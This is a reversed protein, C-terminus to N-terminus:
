NLYSPYEDGRTNIMDILSTYPSQIQIAIGRKSTNMKGLRALDRDEMSIRRIYAQFGSFSSPPPAITASTAPFRRELLPFKLSIQSLKQSFLQSIPLSTLIRAEWKEKIPSFSPIHPMKLCMCGPGIQPFGVMPFNCPYELLLFPFQLTLFRGSNQLFPEILARHYISIVDDSDFVLILHQDNFELLKIVEKSQNAIHNIADEKGGKFQFRIKIARQAIERAEVLENLMEGERITRLGKEDNIEKRFQDM